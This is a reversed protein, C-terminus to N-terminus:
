GCHKGFLAAWGDLRARVLLWPALKPPLALVIATAATFASPNPYIKRGRSHLLDTVKCIRDWLVQYNEKLIKEVGEWDPDPEQFFSSGWGPVKGGNDLIFEAARVPDKAILVAITQELPAHKGGLSTLAGIISKGFDGSSEALAVVM